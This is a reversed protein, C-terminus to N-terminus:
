GCHRSDGEREVPIPESCGHVDNGLMCNPQQPCSACDEVWCSGMWCESVSCSCEWRRDGEPTDSIIGDMEVCRDLSVAAANGCCETPTCPDAACPIEGPNWSIVQDEGCLSQDADACTVPEVETVGLAALVSSADEGSDDSSTSSSPSPSSKGGMLGFGIFALIAIIMGFFGLIGDEHFKRKHKM